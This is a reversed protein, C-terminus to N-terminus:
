QRLRGRHPAGSWQTEWLPAVARSLGRECRPTRTEANRAPTGSRSESRRRVVQVGLFVSFGRADCPMLPSASGTACSEAHGTTGGADSPALDSRLRGDPSYAYSLSVHYGAQSSANLVALLV